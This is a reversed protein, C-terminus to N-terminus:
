KDDIDKVYDYWNVYGSRENIVQARYMQVWVDIYADHRFKQRVSGKFNNYNIHDVESAIVDAVKHRNILARYAYDHNDTQKVDASPFVKEIDGDFRARVLLDESRGQDEVSPEVISLFADNLFVWM